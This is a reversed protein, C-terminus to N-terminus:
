EWNLPFYVQFGVGRVSQIRIREDYQFYKRLRSIFVDMSRGTFYDSSKWVHKLILERTIIQENYQLLLVLLDAERETLQWKEHNKYELLLQEPKFIYAGFRCTDNLAVMTKRKLINHVRLILEEPDCPKAVYDEAGMKLGFIRDIQQNKATLFLFPCASKEQIKKALSFGDMHPMMVDLIAIDVRSLTENQALVDLPNHFWLVDFGSLELYQKLIFGFDAEDEVLLVSIKTM